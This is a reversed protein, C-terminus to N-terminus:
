INFVGVVKMHNLQHGFTIHFVVHAQRGHFANGLAFFQQRQNLLFFVVAYAKGGNFMQNAYQRLVVCHNIRNHAVHHFLQIAM